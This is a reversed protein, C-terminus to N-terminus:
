VSMIVNHAEIIKTIKSTHKQSNAVVYNTFHSKGQHFELDNKNSSVFKGEPSQGMILNFYNIDGLTKWEVGHPCHESMLRELTNMTCEHHNALLGAYDWSIM